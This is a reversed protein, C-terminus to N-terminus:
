KEPPFIVVGSLHDFEHQYCRSANAKLELTKTTGDPQTWSGTIKRMRRVTETFGPKSLCGEQGKMVSPNNVVYSPNIAVHITRNRTFLFFRLPIGVQPAALGIGKEKLMLAKMADVHPLVETEIDTVRKCPQRLIPDTHPVLEITM